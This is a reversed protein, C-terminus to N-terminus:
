RFLNLFANSTEAVFCVCTEDGVAGPKHRAGPEGLVLDGREYVNTGDSFQGQLVVTAEMSGHGHTPATKGPELKMFKAGPTGTHAYSVGSVGRKWNLPGQSMALLEQATKKQRPANRSRKRGGTADTAAAPPNELLAGGVASWILAADAGAPSMLAHLDGALALGGALNGAAHDMMFSAYSEQTKL